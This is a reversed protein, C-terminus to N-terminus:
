RRRPAVAAPDAEAVHALPQADDVAVLGAHLERALGAAARHRADFDGIEGRAAAGREHAVREARDDGVVLLRGALFQAEQEALDLVDADDALGLVADARELDDVLELRLTANRSM